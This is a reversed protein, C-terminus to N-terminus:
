LEIGRQLALRRLERMALNHRDVVTSASAGMAQSLERVTMGLFYLGVLVTRQSVSLESLLRPILGTLEELACREMPSLIAAAVSQEDLQRFEKEKRQARLHELFVHRAIVKVYNWPNVVVEGSTVRDYLRVFVEQSLDEVTGPDAVVHAFWGRVRPYDRALSKKWDDADGAVLLCDV